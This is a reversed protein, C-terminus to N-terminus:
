PGMEKKIDTQSGHSHMFCRLFEVGPELCVEGGIGSQLKSLHFNMGTLFVVRDVNIHYLVQSMSHGLATGAAGLCGGQVFVLVSQDYWCVVEVRKGSGCVERGRSTSGSNGMMELSREISSPKQISDSVGWMEVMATGGGFM